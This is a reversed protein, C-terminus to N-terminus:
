LVDASVKVYEEKWTRGKKKYNVNMFIATFQHCKVPIEVLFKLRFINQGLRDNCQDKDKWHKEFKHCNKEDNM